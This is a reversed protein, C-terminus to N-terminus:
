GVTRSKLYAAFGTMARFPPLEIFLDIRKIVALGLKRKIADM